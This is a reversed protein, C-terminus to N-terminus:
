ETGEAADSVLRETLHALEATAAKIDETAFIASIVAVGCIGSGSLKDINHKSIGGIAM